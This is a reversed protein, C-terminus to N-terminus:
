NLRRDYPEVFSRQELLHDVPTLNGQLLEGQIPQNGRKPM